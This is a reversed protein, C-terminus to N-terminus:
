VFSEEEDLIIKVLIEFDFIEVFREYFLIRM